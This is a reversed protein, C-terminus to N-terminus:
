VPQDPSVLVSQSVANTLTTTIVTPASRATMTPLRELRMVNTVNLVWRNVPPHNVVNLRTTKVHLVLRKHTRSTGMLVSSMKTEVLQPFLTAAFTQLVDMQVNLPELNTSCPTACSNKTPALQPLQSVVNPVMISATTRPLTTVVLLVVQNTFVMTVDFVKTEVLKLLQHV